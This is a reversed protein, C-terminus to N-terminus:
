SPKVRHFKVGEVVEDGADHLAYGIIRHPEGALQAIKERIAKHMVDSTNESYWDGRTFAYLKFTVQASGGSVLEVVGRIQAVAGAKRTGALTKM